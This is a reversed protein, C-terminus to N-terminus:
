VYSSWIFNTSIDENDYYDRLKVVNSELVPMKYM